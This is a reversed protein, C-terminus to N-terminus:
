SLIKWEEISISEIDLTSRIGKPDYWICFQFCDRTNNSCCRYLRSDYHMEYGSHRIFFKCFKKFKNWSIEPDNYQIGRSIFLVDKGWTDYRDLIFKINRATVFAGEIPHRYEPALWARNCFRSINKPWRGNNYIGHFGAPKDDIKYIIMYEHDELNIGKYNKNLLHSEDQEAMTSVTLWEDTPTTIVTQSERDKLTKL